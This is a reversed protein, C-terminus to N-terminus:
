GLASRLVSPTPPEDFRKILTVQNGHENYHFEDVLGKALMIGFGGERLGLDNRVDLHAVPNEDSAAHPLNRPDFGPGQDKIVLTIQNPEIRYTIQLLLETNRRHGWEIANAGMEMVAQKLDKVQRENLPTHAFLDTLLDNMKQLHVIESRIDFHIEGETGRLDHERRWALVAHMAQRINDTPFPKTVYANAGVRVGHVRDDDGGLASVIVIPIMNTERDLKMQECIAFGNLDPLMVDLLLLEPQYRRVAPQVDLGRYVQIPEFGEARVIDALLDNTEPEDDVVLVHRPM